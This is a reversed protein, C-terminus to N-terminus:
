RDVITTYNISPLYYVPRQDFVPVELKHGKDRRLIADSYYDIGHVRTPEEM